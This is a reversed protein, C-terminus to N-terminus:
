NEPWNFYHNAHEGEAILMQTNVQTNTGQMLGYDVNDADM